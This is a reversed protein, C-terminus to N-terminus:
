NNTTDLLGFTDIDSAIWALVERQDDTLLEPMDAMRDLRWTTLRLAQLASYAPGLMFERAREKFRAADREHLISTMECVLDYTRETAARLTESTKDTM